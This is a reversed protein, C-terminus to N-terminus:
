FFDVGTPMPNNRENDTKQNRHENADSRKKQQATVGFREVNAHYM